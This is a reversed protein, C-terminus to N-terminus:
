RMEKNKGSSPIRQTSASGDRKLLLVSVAATFPVSAVIGISGSLAHMIDIVIMPINIFQRYTMGYGWIMMILPLSSGAFALILTNSMTGTIDRGVAIGAMFLQKGSMAPAEAADGRTSGATYIEQMSSAISMSVDMVAGLSAILISTFLLGDLRLAYDRAINLLQEGSAMNVGSLQAAHGILLSISGALSIGFVTGLVAAATKRSFGSILLFSVLTIVSALLVSVPVPSFGAFLAPILITVIIVATFILAIISQLGQRKGLLLLLIFFISALIYLYSDRKQNYLWVAIEGNRNIVTFVATMGAVARTHHLSSLTNRVTITKGKESGDLLLVSLTQIGRFRQEIVPDPTLDESIVATVKGLVFEQTFPSVPRIAAWYHPMVYGLLASLCLIGVTFLNEHTKKM